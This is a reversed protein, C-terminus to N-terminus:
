KFFFREKSSIKFSIKFQALQAGYHKCTLGILFYFCSSQPSLPRKHGPKSYQPENLETERNCICVFKVFSIPLINKRTQHSTFKKINMNINLLSRYLQMSFCVQVHPMLIRQATSIKNNRKTKIHQIDKESYYM